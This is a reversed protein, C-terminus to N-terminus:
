VSVSMSQLISRIGLMLILSVWQALLKYITYFFGFQLRRSISGEAILLTIFFVSALALLITAMRRDFTQAASSSNLWLVYGTSLLFSVSVGLLNAAIWCIKHWASRIAIQMNEAILASM